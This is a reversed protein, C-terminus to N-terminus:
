FFLFFYVQKLTFWIFLNLYKDTHRIVCQFQIALELTSQEKYLITYIMVM